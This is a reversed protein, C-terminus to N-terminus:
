VDGPLGSGLYSHTAMLMRTKCGLLGDDHTIEKWGVMASWQLGGCTEDRLSDVGDDM